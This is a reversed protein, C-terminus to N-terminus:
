FKPVVELELLLQLYGINCVACVARRQQTKKLHHSHLIHLERCQASDTGDSVPVGPFDSTLWMVTVKGSVKGLAYGSHLRFKIRHLSHARAGFLNM